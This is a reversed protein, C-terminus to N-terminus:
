PYAFWGTSSFYMRNEDVSRRPPGIATWMVHEPSGQENGPGIWKSLPSGRRETCVFAWASISRGDRLVLGRVTEDGSIISDPQTSFWIEAGNQTAREVVAGVIDQYPALLFHGNRTHRYDFEILPEGDHHYHIVSRKLTGREVLGPLADLAELEAIAGQKLVEGGDSPLCAGRYLVVVRLNMAALHAALASGSLGAGIIVVDVDHTAM